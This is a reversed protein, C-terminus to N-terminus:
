SWLIIQGARDPGLTLIMHAAWETPSDTEIYCDHLEDEEMVQAWSDCHAQTVMALDYERQVKTRPNTIVTGM